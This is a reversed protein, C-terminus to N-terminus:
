HRKEKKSKKRSKSRSREKHKHKKKEKKSKKEKKVSKEVWVASESQVVKRSGTFIPRSISVDTTELISQPLAPGYVDPPVSDEKINAEHEHESEKSTSSNSKDDSQEEKTKNKSKAQPDDPKVPRKLLSDLDLKAFVGRPPSTNRQANQEAASTGILAAKVKEDDINPQQPTEEAETESEDSDLFISKFLDKKEQSNIRASPEEQEKSGSENEVASNQDDPKSSSGSSKGFIKDYTEEFSKDKESKPKDKIERTDTNEVRTRSENFSRSSAAVTGPVDYELKQGTEFKSMENWSMNDFISFKKKKKEDIAVGIDPEAINFRVCVLKGPRWEVDVRTLKGFIKMKAAAMMKEDGTLSELDIKKEKKEQARDKEKVADNDLKECIKAAKEFDETERDREWDNMSLPQVSPFKLKRESESFKLYQEFRRQKDLDAFSPRSLSKAATEIEVPKEGSNDAEANFADSSQLNGQIKPDNGLTEGRVFATSSLKDLWSMATKKPRANELRAREETQERGHLNLSRSIINAAASPTKSQATKSETTSSLADNIIAARKEANMETRKHRDKPDEPLPEFRSTKLRHVPQFDKPLAPAPFVKKQPFQEKAPVFGEVCNKPKEEKSWRSKSKREPGLAFDYRSMDDKAYIDEDEAEFAGVGFAQGRISLKKNKDQVSFAPADFLNIHGGLIPRRDLGSYGIGFYNDKPNCRFPEYDDPAFTINTFEDDSGGSDSVSDREQQNPLSCGYMKIKERQKQVKKKEKKTLRPGVGQGPRWGMKKLLMVGVREKAPKLLEHLVPTGPIPGTSDHKARERKTGRNSQDSYGQTARIATPAIGFEGVDEEDMFDEPKQSLSDAKSSRTSKFQQPKWGDRTGVTNFYGASFGGTFAGHFRRRGQADYAFQEEVTIPKKRPLSDEDLPDLATGYTVFDDDSDSM